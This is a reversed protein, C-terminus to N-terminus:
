ESIWAITTPRSEDFVIEISPSDGKPNIIVLETRHKLESELQRRLMPSLLDQPSGQDPLATLRWSSYKTGASGSGIEEHSVTVQGDPRRYLYYPGWLGKGTSDPPGVDKLAEEFTMGPRFGDFLRTNILESWHASTFVVIRSDRYQIEHIPPSGQVVREEPTTHCGSFWLSLLAILISKTPMRHM